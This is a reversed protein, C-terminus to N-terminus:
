IVLGELINILKKIDKNKLSEFLPLSIFHDHIDFYNKCQQLSSFEQFMDIQDLREQYTSGFKHELHKAEIGGDNLRKILDPANFKKSWINLKTFSPEFEAFNLEHFCDILDDKKLLKVIKFANEKRKTHLKEFKKQQNQFIKFLLGDPTKVNKYFITKAKQHSVTSSKASMLLEYIKEGIFNTRHTEIINRVMRYYLLKKSIKGLKDQISKAKSYIEYDDTALIGGGIGYANKILSFCSIDGYTGINKGKYKAGFSQACDEIVLLDNGKAIKSIKEIEAPLGGMHSIQIAFADQPLNVIKDPDLNLNQKSLDSFHIKKDAFIVPELASTCTLPSTIVSGKNEIARYSLYLASRCSSTLLIYKKQTYERFFSETQKEANKIFLFALMDKIGFNPSYYPITKM